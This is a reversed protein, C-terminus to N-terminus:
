AAGSQGQIIKEIKDFDISYHSGHYIVKGESLVIVQPSHHRVGTIEAIRNSEQRANQVVVIHVEASLNSIQEFQHLSTGCSNSHKFIIVPRKASSEILLDLDFGQTIEHLVANSM